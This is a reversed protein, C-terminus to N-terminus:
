DVAACIVETISIANLLVKRDINDGVIRFAPTISTSAAGM